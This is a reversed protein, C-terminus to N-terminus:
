YLEKKIVAPVGAAMVGDPLAGVVAAGAAIMCDNGIAVEQIVSSGIGIHTRAGVSVAGALAANPSVHVFDGLVCDHEIIAGSNIIAGKGIEASANIVALPMVVTGEGLRADPSVSATPHVITLPTIGQAAIKEFVKQRARNSGIGLAIPTKPYAQAFQELSYAGEMRADDIWVIDSFGCAVAIQAVVKGHGGFGYVGIRRTAAM